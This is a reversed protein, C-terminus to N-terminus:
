NVDRIYTCSGINRTEYGRELWYFFAFLLLIVRGVLRWRFFSGIMDLEVAGTASAVMRVGCNNAWGLVPCLFM